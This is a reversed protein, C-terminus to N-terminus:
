LQVLMGRNHTKQTDFEPKMYQIAVRTFSSSELDSSLFPLFLKNLELKNQKDWTSPNWHLDKHMSHLHVVCLKMM